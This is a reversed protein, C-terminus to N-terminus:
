HVILTVNKNMIIVTLQVHKQKTAAMQGVYGLIGNRAVLHEQFYRHKLSVYQVAENLIFIM